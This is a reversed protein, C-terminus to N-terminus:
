LVGSYMILANILQGAFMAIDSTAGAANFGQSWCTTARLVDGEIEGAYVYTDCVILLYISGSSYEGRKGAKTVIPAPFGLILTM